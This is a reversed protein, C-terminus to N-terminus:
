YTYISCSCLIFFSILSLSLSLPQHHHHTHQTRIMIVYSVKYPQKSNISLQLKQWNSHPTGKGNWITILNNSKYLLVQLNSSTSPMIYWFELCVNTDTILPTALTTNTGIHIGFPLDLLFCILENLNLRPLIKPFM